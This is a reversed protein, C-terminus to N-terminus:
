KKDNKQNLRFKYETYIMYVILLLLLCLAAYFAFKGFKKDETVVIDSSLDGYVSAADPMSSSSVAQKHNSSIEVHTYSSINSSIESSTSNVSEVHNITKSPYSNASSTVIQESSTEYHPGYKLYYFSEVVDGGGTACVAFEDDLVKDATSLVGRFVCNEITGNINKAVIGGLFVDDRDTKIVSDDFSLNKIVGNTGLIGIFSLYSYDNSEIKLNYITYGNGDLVGTFSNDSDTFMMKNTSELYIDNKLVYTGQPNNELAFLEEETSINHISDASAPFVINSVLLCFLACGFFLKYM